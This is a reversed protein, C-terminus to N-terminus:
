LGLHRRRGEQERQLSEHLRTVESRGRDAAARTSQLMESLEANMPAATEQLALLSPPAEPLAVSQQDDTDPRPGQQRRSTVRSVEHWLKQDRAKRGDNQVKEQCSMLRKATEKWVGSPAPPSAM